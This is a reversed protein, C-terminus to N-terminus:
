INMGFKKARAYRRFLLNLHTGPRAIEDIKLMKRDVKPRSGTWINSMGDM